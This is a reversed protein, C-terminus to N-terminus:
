EIKQCCAGWGTGTGDRCLLWWWLAAPSLRKELSKKHESGGLINSKWLKLVELSFCKGPLVEAEKGEDLQSHERRLDFVSLM